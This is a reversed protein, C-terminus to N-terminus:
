NFPQFLVTKRSDGKRTVDPADRVARMMEKLNYPKGAFGGAGTEAAQTTQDSAAFGGPILTKVQPDIKLNNDEPGAAASFTVCTLLLLGLLAFSASSFSIVKFGDLLLSM